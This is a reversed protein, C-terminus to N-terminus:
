SNGASGLFCNLAQESDMRELQRSPVAPTPSIDVLSNSTHDPGDVVMPLDLPQQASENYWVADQSDMASGNFAVRNSSCGIIIIFMSVIIIIIDM